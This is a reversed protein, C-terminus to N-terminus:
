DGLAEYCSGNCGNLMLAITDTLWGCNPCYQVETPEQGGRVEIAFTDDRIVFCVGRAVSLPFGVAWGGVCPFVSAHICM